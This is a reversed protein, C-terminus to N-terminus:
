STSPHEEGVTTNLQKRKGVISANFKHSAIYEPPQQGFPAERWGSIHKKFLLLLSYFPTTLIVLGLPICHLGILMNNCVKSQEQSLQASSSVLHGKRQRLIATERVNM